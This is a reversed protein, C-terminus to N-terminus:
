RENKVKNYFMIADHYHKVFNMKEQDSSENEENEFSYVPISINKSNFMGTNKDIINFKFIDSKYITKMSNESVFHGGKLRREHNRILRNDLDSYISIILSKKKFENPINSIIADISRNYVDEPKVSFTNIYEPDIRRAFEIIYKNGQNVEKATLQM